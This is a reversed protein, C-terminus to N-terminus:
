YKNNKLNLYKQKYKLYKQNYKLYKQNASQSLNNIDDIDKLKVWTNNINFYYMEPRKISINTGVNTVVSIIGKENLTSQTVIETNGGPTIINDGVEILPRLIGLDTIYYKTPNIKITSNPIKELVISWNNNSKMRTIANMFFKAINAANAANAARIAYLPEKNGAAGSTNGVAGSTNSPPLLPLPQNNSTNSPSPPLNNYHSKILNLNNLLWGNKDKEMFVKDTIRNRASKEIDCFTSDLPIRLDDTIMKINTNFNDRFAEIDALTKSEDVIQNMTFAYKLEDIYNNSTFCEGVITKINNIIASTKAIPAINLYDDIKDYETWTNNTKDFLHLKSQGIKLQKNIVYENALPNYAVNSIKIPSSSNKETIFQSSIFLPRIKNDKYMYNAPDIIIFKQKRNEDDIFSLKLTSPSLVTYDDIILSDIIFLKNKKIYTLRKNLNLEIIDNEQIMGTTNIPKKKPVPVLSPSSSPVISPSGASPITPSTTTTAVSSASASPATIGGSGASASLATTTITSGTGTKGYTLFGKPIKFLPPRSNKAGTASAAGSVIAPAVITSPEIKKIITNVNETIKIQLDSDLENLIITYDILNNNTLTICIICKIFLKIFNEVYKKKNTKKFPENIILDNKIKKIDNTPLITDLVDNYDNSLLSSLEQNIIILENIYKKLPLDTIKM